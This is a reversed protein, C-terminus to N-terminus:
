SLRYYSMYDLIGPVQIDSVRLVSQILNGDKLVIAANAVKM